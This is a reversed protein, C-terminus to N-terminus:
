FAYMAFNQEIEKGESAAFFMVAYEEEEDWEVHDALDRGNEDEKESQDM